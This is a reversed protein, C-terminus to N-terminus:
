TTPLVVFCSCTVKLANAIILLRQCFSLPVFRNTEDVIRQLVDDAWFRRFYAECSHAWGDGPFTVSPPPGTFTHAEELLTTNLEQWQSNTYVADFTWASMDENPDYIGLDAMADEM